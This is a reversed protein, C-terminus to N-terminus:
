SGVIAIHIYRHRTANGLALGLGGATTEPMGQRSVTSYRFVFAACAVM